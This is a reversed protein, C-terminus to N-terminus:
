SHSQVIVWDGSHRPLWFPETSQVPQTSYSRYLVWRFPGKGFDTPAVWWTINPSTLVSQWGEVDYWEGKPGQWQVVAKLGIVKVGAPLMNLQIHGGLDVVKPHDAVAVITPTTVPLIPVTTPLPLPIVTPRTEDLSRISVASNNASATGLALLSIFVFVSCIAM